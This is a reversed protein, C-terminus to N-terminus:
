EVNQRRVIMGRKVDIIEGLLSSINFSISSFSVGCRKFDKVLKIKTFNLSNAVRITGVIKACARNV